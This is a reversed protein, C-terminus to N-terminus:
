QNSWRFIGKALSAWALFTRMSEREIEWKLLSSILISCVEHQCSFIGSGAWHMRIYWYMQLDSTVFSLSTEGWNRSRLWWVSGIKLIANTSRTEWTAAFGQRSSGETWRRPTGIRSVGGGSERQDVFLFPSGKGLVPRRLWRQLILLEGSFSLSLLAPGSFSRHGRPSLAPRGRTRALGGRGTIETAMSVGRLRGRAGVVGAGWLCWWKERTRRSTWECVRKGREDRGRWRKKWGTDGQQLAGERSDVLFGYRDASSNSTRRIRRPTSSVVLDDAIVRENEGARGGGQERAGKM